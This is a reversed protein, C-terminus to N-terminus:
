AASARDRGARSARSRTRRRDEVVLEAAEIAARVDVVVADLLDDGGRLHLRGVAPARERAPVLGLELRDEADGEVDGLAQRRDRVSGLDFARVASPRVTIRKASVITM